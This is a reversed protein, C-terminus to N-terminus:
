LANFQGEAYWNESQIFVRHIGSTVIPLTTNLFPSYSEVKGAADYIFVEANYNDAGIVDITHTNPNYYAEIDIRMPMRQISPNLNNSSYDLIIKESSDGKKNNEAGISFTSSVLAILLIIFKRM